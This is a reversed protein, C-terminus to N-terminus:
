WLIMPCKEVLKMQKNQPKEDDMEEVVVDYMGYLGCYTNEMAYIYVRM